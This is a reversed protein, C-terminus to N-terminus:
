PALMIASGKRGDPETFESPAKHWVTGERIARHGYHFSTTGRLTDMSRQMRVLAEPTV